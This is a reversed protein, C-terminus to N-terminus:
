WPVVLLENSAPVCVQLLVDLKPPVLLLGHVAPPAVILRGFRSRLGMAAVRLIRVHRLASPSVTTSLAMWIREVWVCVEAVPLMEVHLLAGLLAITPPAM